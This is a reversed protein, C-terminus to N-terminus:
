MLNYGARYQYHMLKTAAGDTDDVFTETEPNWKITRKLECAINGLTCVTCSSHGIEVPVVPDKRSRVAEIFNVQHPIRTEYPGDNATASAPPNFKPDSANFYGRSVEIWGTEGIFKVGKTLKEDFPESTMVVGNAYKWSIFETGDGIPSIEVPGNKDMGLGWQAIDFMHAGWDTTFGGGMEKYWRWGGWIKEDVPPDLSIPPNLENNFHIPMPLSGLWLDWNLDAPLTEEPLDYPKPPAGVYANVKTIKGIAGEQVLKVAHQFEPSSRQQSGLGFIRNNERVVKKLQQGEFITFTMPKELYVDKGARCAAIAIRAHSHDPIAIVVANIDTRALLEEYKEYTEVKVEKGAKAYFETVRKEFRKRKIGYVDCGAVAKVGPVQMFGNLLFMAQRGLGIFGLKIDTDVSATKCSTLHPIVALGAASGITLNIFQRRSWQKKQEKM